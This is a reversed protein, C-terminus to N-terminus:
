IVFYNNKCRKIIDMPFFYSKLRLVQIILVLRMKMQMSLRSGRGVLVVSECVCVSENEESHRMFMGM